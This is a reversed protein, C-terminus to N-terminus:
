NRLTSLMGIMCIFHLKDAKSKFRRTNWKSAAEKRSSPLITSHSESLTQLTFSSSHYYEMHIIDKIHIMANCLGKFTTNTSQYFSM